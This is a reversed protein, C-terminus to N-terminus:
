FLFPVLAKVRTKYAPYDNPFHRIMLTEEQRLKIWFSAAVLSFGILSRLRGACVATGLLM